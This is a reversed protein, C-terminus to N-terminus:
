MEPSVERHGSIVRIGFMGWPFASSGSCRHHRPTLARWRNLLPVSDRLGSGFLRTRSAMDCARASRYIADLARQHPVGDAPPALHTLYLRRGEEGATLHWIVLCAQALIARQDGATCGNFAGSARLRRAVMARLELLSPTDVSEVHM